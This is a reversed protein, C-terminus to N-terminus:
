SDIGVILNGISLAPTFPMMRERLDEETSLFTGAGQDCFRQSPHGSAPMQQRAILPVGQATFNSFTGVALKSM